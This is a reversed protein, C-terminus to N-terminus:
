EDLLMDAWVAHAGLFMAALGGPTVINGPREETLRVRGDAVLYYGNNEPVDLDADVGIHLQFEPHAVAVASLFRKVNVVRAMVYPGAGETEGSVPVRAYVKETGFERRVAAVLADRAESSATTMNRVFVRGDTERAALCLGMVRQRSRVTLVAGGARDCAALAAFFDNEAPRFMFPTVSHRRFFVYLDTGWEDPCGVTLGASVTGAPPLEQETRFTSTWYAGHQPLEYYRRLSDDGPILFALAAGQRYLRRHGERVIRSGLGQGRMDPHVCLGSLYGAHVPVGYFLLQYPLMQAAAVVRGERSVTLNSADSYKEEFYIDLFDDSDGFCNKWLERTQRKIEEKDSFMTVNM